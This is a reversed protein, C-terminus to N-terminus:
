INGGNRGIHRRLEDLTFSWTARTIERGDLYVPAELVVTGAWSGGSTAYGGGGASRVLGAEQLVEAARQPDDLPVVAERGHLMALTGPGFDDHGGRAYGPATYPNGGRIQGTDYPDFASGEDYQHKVIVTTDIETPISLLTNIYEQIFGRLAPYKEAERELLAILASKRDFAEHHAAADRAQAEVEADVADVLRLAMATGQRGAETNHGLEFTGDAIAKNLDAEANSVALQTNLLGTHSGMVGRLADDYAKLRDASDKLELNLKAQAPTVGTAIVEAMVRSDQTGQKQAAALERLKKEWESTDKGAAKYADVLRSAAPANSEALKNFDGFIKLADGGKAVFNALGQTSAAGLASNFKATNADANASELKYVSYAVGAAALAGTVGKLGGVLLQAGRSGDEAATSLKGLGSVVPGIGSAITAFTAVQASFPGIFAAAKDKLMDLRDLWTRYKEATGEITNGNDDVAKSLSDLELKGARIAQVLAPASKTGFAEIGLQLAEQETTANKISGILADFAAKPDGGAQAIDGLAKRLGPVMADTLRSVLLSAQDFSFGMGQLVPRFETLRDLLTTMPQGSSQAIKFVRELKTGMDEAAIGWAGLTSAVQSGSIGIGLEKLDLVKRTLAELPKGTLSTKAALDSVVDGIEGISGKVSGAVNRVSSTLQNLREGTAGTQVAIEKTMSNWSGAIATTTAAVGGALPTLTKTLTGGISSLKEGISASDVGKGIDKFFGSIKKGIEALKNESEGAKANLDALAKQGGSADGLVVLKLLREGASM